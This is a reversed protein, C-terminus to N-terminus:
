AGVREAALRQTVVATKDAFSRDAFAAPHAVVPAIPAAPRDSWARDLPNDAVAVLEAGADRAAARRRAIGEVTHLWPDFGIRMGPQANKAIWDHPPEETLHRYEFLGGDVQVKVQLTYRGDIFIAAREALVIAMGASGTFGTLWALREASRPVYE